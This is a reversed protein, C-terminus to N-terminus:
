RHVGPPTPTRDAKVPPADFVGEVEAAKTLGGLNRSVGGVLRSWRGYASDPTRVVVTM